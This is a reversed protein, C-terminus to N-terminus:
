DDGHDDSEGGAGSGGGEEGGLTGGSGGGPSTTTASSDGSSPDGAAETSQPPDAATSADTPATGLTRTTPRGAAHSQPSRRPVLLPAKVHIPEAPSNLGSGALVLASGTLTATAAVGVVCLVFAKWTTRGM